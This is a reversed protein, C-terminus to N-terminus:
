NSRRWRIQETCAGVAMHEEVFKEVAFRCYLFAVEGEGTGDLGATAGGCCSAM